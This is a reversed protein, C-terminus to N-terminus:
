GKNLQVTTINYSNVFDPIAKGEEILENLVRDLTKHHISQKIIGDLGNEKIFNVLQEQHAEDVKYTNFSKLTVSGYGDYTGTRTQQRDNLYTILKLKALSLAEKADKLSNEIDNVANNKTIFDMFLEKEDM